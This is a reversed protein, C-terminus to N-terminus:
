RLGKNKRLIRVINSDQSPYNKKNTNKTKNTTRKSNGSGRISRIVRIESLLGSFVISGEGTGYQQRRVSLLTKADAQM